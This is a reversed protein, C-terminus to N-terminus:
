PLITISDMPRSDLKMNEQRKMVQPTFFTPRGNGDTQRKGDAM